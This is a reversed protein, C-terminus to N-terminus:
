ISVLVLEEFDFLPNVNPLTLVISGHSICWIMTLIFSHMFIYVYVCVCVHGHLYVDMCVCM